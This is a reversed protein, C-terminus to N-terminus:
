RCRNPSRVLSPVLCCCRRHRPLRQFETHLSSKRRPPRFWLEFGKIRSFSTVLWISCTIISVEKEVAMDTTEELHAAYDLDNVMYALGTALDPDTIGRDKLKTKFCGDIGLFLTELHRTIDAHTCLCNCVFLLDPMCLVVQSHYLTRIPNPVHRAYFLLVEM